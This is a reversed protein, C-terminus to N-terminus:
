PHHIDLELTSFGLVTSRLEEPVSIAVDPLGSRTSGVPVVVCGTDMAPVTVTVPPNVSACSLALATGTDKVLVVMVPVTAIEAALKGSGDPAAVSVVKAAADALSGAVNPCFVEALLKATTTADSWDTKGTCSSRGAEALSV